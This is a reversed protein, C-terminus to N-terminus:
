SLLTILFDFKEWDWFLQESLYTTPFFVDYYFVFGQKDARVKRNPKEIKCAKLTSCKTSNIWFYRAM